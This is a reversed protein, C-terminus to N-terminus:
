KKKLFQTLSGNGGKKSKEKKTSRNTASKVEVELESEVQMVNQGDRSPNSSDKTLCKDVHKNFLSINGKCDVMQSCIPCLYKGKEAVDNRM